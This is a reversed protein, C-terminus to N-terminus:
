ASERVVLEFSLGFNPPKDPARNQMLADFYTVLAQIREPVETQV